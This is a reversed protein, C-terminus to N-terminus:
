DAEMLGPVPKYCLKRDFIEPAFPRATAARGM